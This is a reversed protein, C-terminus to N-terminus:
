KQNVDKGRGKTKTIMLFRVFVRYKTQITAKDIFKKYEAQLNKLVNDFAKM